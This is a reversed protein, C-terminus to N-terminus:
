APDATSVPQAKGNKKAERILERMVREAARSAQAQERGLEGMQQGLAAMPKSAEAMRAQLGQMSQQLAQEQAQVHQQAQQRALQEIQQQLPQMARQLEAQRQHFQQLQEATPQEGLKRAAQEIRRAIAEQQRALADIKRQQEASPAAFQRELDRGMADMQKGIADMSQGQQEMKKGQEEMRAGLSEVPAWAAHAQALMAADQIVYGKKGDRFWIFDGKLRSRAADIQARDLSTTRTVMTRKDDHVLAFAAGRSLGPEAADAPPAPPAPPAPLAPLAAAPAPPAPPAPRAALAPLAAPAPPVPLAALPPVAPLAPLPRSAGTDATAHAYLMVGAAFLGLLPLALKRSAPESHPRVLRQIRSMLNGGHAAHALQTSDFQFQDLQALAQALKQPQGLMDVALDDAIQEREIRIRRSLAWVSPHYFLLIEIASQLLNVLYDHRRIHALEHALLAELLDPPMGSILSAPVLIIPRWCGATIPSDIGGAVGLRVDRRIEFRSALLAMRRQWYHNITYASRQTRAAVWQLGLMLRLTMLVGGALWLGVIWPLQQRLVRESDRRLASGFQSLVHVAPGRLSGADAAPASSAMADQGADQGAGQWSAYLGTTLLATQSDSRGDDRLAGIVSALPLLLCLLMAGCAVAYRTQPRARRLLQMALAVSCGILVGQWVFNLLAWGLAAVLADLLNHM